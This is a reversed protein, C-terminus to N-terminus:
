YTLRLLTFLGLGIDAGDPVFTRAKVRDLGVFTGNTSELDEIFVKEDETTVRAHRRSVSEHSLRVDVAKERGIISGSSTLRYVSGSDPGNLVVLHPVRPEDPPETTASPNRDDQDTAMPLEEGQDKLLRRAM